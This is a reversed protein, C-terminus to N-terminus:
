MHIYLIHLTVSELVTHRLACSVIVVLIVATGPVTNTAVQYTNGYIIVRVQYNDKSSVSLKLSIFQKFDTTFSQLKWDVIMM